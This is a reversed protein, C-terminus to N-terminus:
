RILKESKNLSDIKKLMMLYQQHSGIAQGISCLPLAGKFTASKNQQFHAYAFKSFYGNIQLDHIADLMETNMSIGYRDVLRDLRDIGISIGSRFIDNWTGSDPISHITKPRLALCTNQAKEIMAPALMLDFSIESAPLYNGGINEMYLTRFPATLTDLSKAIEINVIKGLGKKEAEQIQKEERQQYALCMSVILALVVLALTYRGSNTLKKFGSANKDWTNGIIAVLASAFAVIIPVYEM